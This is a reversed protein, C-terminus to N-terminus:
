FLSFVLCLFFHVEFEVENTVNFALFPLELPDYLYLIAYPTFTSEIIPYLSFMTKIIHSM